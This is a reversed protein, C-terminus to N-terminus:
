FEHAVAPAVDVGCTPCSHSTVPQSSDKVESNQKGKAQEAEVAALREMTRECRIESIIKLMQDGDGVTLCKGKSSRRPLKLPGDVAARDERKSGIDRRQLRPSLLARLLESRPKQSMKISEKWQNSKVSGLTPSISRKLFLPHLLLEMAPPRDYMDFALCQQILNQMLQGMTNWKVDPLKGERMGKLVARDEINFPLTGRQMFFFCLGCAWVDVRENWNMGLRLEPSCYDPTGRNTLMLGSGPGSGIKKASNFDAIKLEFAEAKLLLNAPKLDRHVIRKQHLYSVGQVLQHGLGKAAHEKFVGRQRVHSEVSGGPCFEMSILTGAFTFHLAEVQVISRHALSRILEFEYQTFRRLEDDHGAVVKVAFTRGDSRRKARRVVSVTGSGLIDGLEYLSGPDLLVSPGDHAEHTAIREGPSDGGVSGREADKATPSASQKVKLVSMDLLPPRRAPNGRGLLTTIPAPRWSPFVEQQTRPAM